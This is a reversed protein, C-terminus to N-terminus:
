KIKRNILAFLDRTYVKDAFNTLKDSMRNFVDSTAKFEELDSLVISNFFESKKLVAEFIVLDINGKLRNCIRYFDIFSHIDTVPITISQDISIHYILL